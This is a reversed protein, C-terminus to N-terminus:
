SEPNLGEALVAQLEAAFQRDFQFSIEGGSQLEMTLVFDGGVPVIGVRFRNAQHAQLLRQNPAGPEPPPSSQLATPILDTLVDPPIAIIHDGGSPTQFNLLIHLGDDTRDFGRYQTVINARIGVM